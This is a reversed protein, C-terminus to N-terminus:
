LGKWVMGARAMNGTRLSDSPWVAGCGTSITMGEIGIKVLEEKTESLKFHKIIAEIKKM